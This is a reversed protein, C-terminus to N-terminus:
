NQVHIRNVKLTSTKQSRGRLMHDQFLVLLHLTQLDPCLYVQTNKLYKLKISKSLIRLPVDDDYMEDLLHLIDYARTSHIDNLKLRSNLQESTEQFSYHFSLNISKVSTKSNILFASYAKSTLSYGIFKAEDAKPSFKGLHKM